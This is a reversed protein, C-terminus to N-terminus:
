LGHLALERDINGIYNPCAKVANTVARDQVAYIKKKFKQFDIYKDIESEDTTDRLAELYGVAYNAHLVSIMPSQDQESAVAWRSIQRLLTQIYKNNDYINSNQSNQQTFILLFIIICVLLLTNVDM